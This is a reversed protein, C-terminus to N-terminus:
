VGIGSAALGNAPAPVKQEKATAERSLDFAVERALDHLARRVPVPMM